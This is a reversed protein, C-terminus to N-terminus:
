PRPSVRQIALGAVFSAAAVGGIVAFPWTPAQRAIQVMFGIVVALVTVEAALAQARLRVM